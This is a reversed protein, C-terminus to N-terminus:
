TGARVLVADASVIGETETRRLTIKSINVGDRSQLQQLWAILSEFRVEGLKVQVQSKNVQKIETVSASLKKQKISSDVVTLLSKSRNSASNVRNKESRKVESKAQKMWVLLSTNNSVSKQLTAVKDQMPSLLGFYLILLIVIVGGWLVIRQERKELAKWWEKM